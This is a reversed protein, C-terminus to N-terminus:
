DSRGNQRGRGTELLKSALNWFRDRLKVIEIKPRRIQSGEEM